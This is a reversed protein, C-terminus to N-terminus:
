TVSEKKRSFPAVFMSPVDLGNSATCTVSSFSPETQCIKFRPRLGASAIDIDVGGTRSHKNGRLISKEM